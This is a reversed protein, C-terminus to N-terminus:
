WIEYNSVFVTVFINYYDEKTNATKLTLIFSKHHITLKVQMSAM